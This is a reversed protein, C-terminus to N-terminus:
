KEKVYSGNQQEFTAWSLLLLLVLINQIRCRVSIRVDGILIEVLHCLSHGRVEKVPSIGKPFRCWIKGHRHVGLLKIRVHPWPREGAPSM